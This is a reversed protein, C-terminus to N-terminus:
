SVEFYVFIRIKVGACLRNEIPELNFSRMKTKANTLYM